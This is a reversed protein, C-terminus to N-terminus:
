RHDIYEDTAPKGAFAISFFNKVYTFGTRLYGEGKFRRPSTYMPHFLSFKVRGVEKARRAIDTDEGYFSISTDFGGMMELSSRRLVFNGGQAMYGLVLYTCYGIVWYGRVIFHSVPHVDYYLAPGSYCALKPNKEFASIVREVWGKKMHGDADLFAILDASSERFGRERAHTLGKKEERVVRVGPFSAATEFTRDSSANDIVIIEKVKGSAAAIISELTEGIYKEENYASIVLDLSPAKNKKQTVVRFLDEWTAAVNQVNFKAGHKRAAEGMNTLLDRQSIIMNIADVCSNRDHPDVLVGHHKGILSALAENNAALVPLGSAFSQLITLPQVESPSLTVFCDSERYAKYLFSQNAGMYPGEFAIKGELGARRVKEILENKLLGGGIIRLRVDAHPYRAFYDIFLDVIGDSNKEKSIRGVYLFTFTSDSSSFLDKNFYESHIANPIIEKHQVSRGLEHTITSPTTFADVSSYYRNQLKPLLSRMPRPVYDLFHEIVTHNTGVLPIKELKALRKADFGLAMFSHSHVIDFKQKRAEKRAVMFGVGPFTARGQGTATKVGWSPVRVIGVGKPTHPEPANVGASQYEKKSYRPAFVVVQHGRDALGSAQLLVSDAVGSLEPYFNDTFIAIRM